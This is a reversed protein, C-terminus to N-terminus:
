RLHGFIASVNKYTEDRTAWLWRAKFWRTVYVMRQLIGGYWVENQFFFPQNDWIHVKPRASENYIDLLNSVHAYGGSMLLLIYWTGQINILKRM